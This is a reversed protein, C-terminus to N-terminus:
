RAWDAVVRGLDVWGHGHRVGDADPEPEPALDFLVVWKKSHARKEAGAKVVQGGAVCRKLTFSAARYGVQTMEALDRMPLPRGQERLASLMLNRIEGVPRGMPPRTTPPGQIM